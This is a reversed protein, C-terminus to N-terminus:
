LDLISVSGGKTGIAVKSDDPSFAITRIDTGSVTIPDGLVGDRLIRVRAKSDRGGAILTQGDSSYAVAYVPVRSVEKSDADPLKFNWHTEVLRKRRDLALNLVGAAEGCRLSDNETRGSLEKVLQCAFLINRDASSPTWFDNAFRQVTAIHAQTNALQAQK